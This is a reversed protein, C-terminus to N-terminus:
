KHGSLIFIIAVISAVASLISTGFAVKMFALAGHLESRWTDLSDLRRDHTLVMDRVTVAVASDVGIDVAARIASRVAAADVSGRVGGEVAARVAADVAPGVADHTTYATPDAPM